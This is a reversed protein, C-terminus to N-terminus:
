ESATAAAEIQVLSSLDPTRCCRCERRNWLHAAVMCISGAVTMFQEGRGGFM